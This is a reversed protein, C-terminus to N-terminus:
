QMTIFTLDGVNSCIQKRIKDGQNMYLSSLSKTWRNVKDITIEDNKWSPCNLKWNSLVKFHEDNLHNIVKDLKDKEWKDDDKVWFLKRKPDTCHIPRTNEDLQQLSKAICDTVCVPYGENEIKELDSVSVNLTNMFESLNIADKCNNNLFTIINVNKYINVINKPENNSVDEIKTKLERTEKVLTKVINNLNEEEQSSSKHVNREKKSLGKCMKKHRYLGSKHKYSSGCTDCTFDKEKIQLNKLHKKTLIHKKYNQFLNTTYNCGICVHIKMSKHKKPINEM